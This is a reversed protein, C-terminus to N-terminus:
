GRWPGSRGGPSRGILAATTSATKTTANKKMAVPFASLALTTSM